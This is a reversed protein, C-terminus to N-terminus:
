SQIDTKNVIVGILWSSSGNQDVPVLFAKDSDRCSCETMASVVKSRCCARFHGKRHCGHCVAEFAPCEILIHDEAM